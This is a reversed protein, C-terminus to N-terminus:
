KTKKSEEGPTDATAAGEAVQGYENIRKLDIRYIWRQLAVILVSRLAFDDSSPLM